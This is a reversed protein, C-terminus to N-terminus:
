LWDRGAAALNGHDRKAAGFAAHLQRDIGLKSASGGATRRAFVWQDHRLWTLNWFNRFPRDVPMSAPTLKFRSPTAVAPTLDIWSNQLLTALVALAVDDGLFNGAAAHARNQAGHVAVNAPFDGDLVQEILGVRALFRAEDLFRLDGALELVRVDHGDMFQTDVGALPKEKGHLHDAASAQGLHQVFEALIRAPSSPYESARRSLMKTLMQLATAYACRLPTIWRSKFGAFM